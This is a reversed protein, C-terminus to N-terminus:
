IDRSRHTARFSYHLKRCRSTRGCLLIPRDSGQDPSPTCSRRGAIPPTVTRQDALDAPEHVEPLRAFYIMLAVTFFHMNHSSLTRQCHEGGRCSLIRASVPAMAALQEPSYQVNTLIFAAGIVPTLVAGVSNFSQALNLRRESSQAPGLITVYPNAGVELFSQGCAM